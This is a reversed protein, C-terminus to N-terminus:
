QSYINNNRHIMGRHEADPNTSKKTSNDSKEILMLKKKIHIPQITAIGFSISSKFFLELLPEITIHLRVIAM